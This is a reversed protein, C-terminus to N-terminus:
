RPVPVRATLDGLVEAPNLGGAEAEPQLVLRHSLVPAALEHVDDPTVFDRGNLAASARSALLLHVAARPGAGVLIDEHERTARVLRNIYDVLEDSATLQKLMVRFGALDGATLVPQIASHEVDHLEQGENYLHLIRLEQEATPYDVAMKLMFRDLQAEPLPYTGEYEIPNQTAFVTFSASLPYPQGDITCRREQMAELLAAQTKAPARNIEDALLLDTFVPGSRLTFGGRQLDYVNTGIVDSPMLDPTFQIRAFQLSLARALARVMMTKATGPVGELLVHGGTLLAVMMGRFVAEQGVVALGVQGLLREYAEGLPRVSDSSVQPEEEIM